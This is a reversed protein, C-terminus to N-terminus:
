SQLVRHARVVVGVGSVGPGSVRFVGRGVARVGAGVPPLGTGSPRLATGLEVAFGLATPRLANAAARGVM